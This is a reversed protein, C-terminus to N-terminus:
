GVVKSAELVDPITKAVDLAEVREGADVLTWAQGLAKRAEGVDVGSGEARDISVRMGELVEDIHELLLADISEMIERSIDLSLQYKRHRYLDRSEDLRSEVSGDDPLYPLALEMMDKARLFTQKAQEIVLSSGLMASLADNMLDVASKLDESEFAEDARALLERSEKLHSGKREEEAFLDRVDHLLSGMRERKAREAVEIAHALDERAGTEDGADAKAKARGLLHEAEGVVAGLGKGTRIAETCQAFMGEMGTPGAVKGGGVGMM